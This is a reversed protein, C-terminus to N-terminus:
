KQKKTFGVARRYFLLIRLWIMSMKIKVNTKFDMIGGCGSGKGKWRRLVSLLELVVEEGEGVVFLDIFDAMPEPNFACSGGAIVLPVSDVREAALVPIGSLDLINLLNTYTLEYGLSFGLIDFDKVPRRSELSFLPM